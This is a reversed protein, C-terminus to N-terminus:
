ATAGNTALAPQRDWTGRKAEAKVFDSFDRAPRGLAEFVGDRTERNRGDFLSFLYLLLSTYEDPIKADAALARFADPSITEYTIDRGTAKAIEAIAKAYPIARPGTLEYLKSSHGPQTLAAVAVEAIDDADIFPEPIAPVPLALKGAVVWDRFAETFNQNFWSARLITWDAGSQLLAREGDEAEPEGRGSLLVIRKVGAAMSTRFFDDIIELAGPVALDPQFAVYVAGCGDLAPGWTSKDNWDFSPTERRSGVRVSYGRDWLLKAIRSGTKGTGGTILFPMTM